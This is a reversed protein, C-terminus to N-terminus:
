GVDVEGVLADVGRFLDDAAFPVDGGVGEAEEQGDEDGGGADVVGSGAGVEDVVEGGAM